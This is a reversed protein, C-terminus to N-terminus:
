RDNPRVRIGVLLNRGPMPNFYRQVGNNIEAMSVYREDLLNDVAVFPGLRVSGMRLNEHGIRIGVVTYAVNSVTNADNLFFSAVSKVDAQVYAGGARRYSLEVFGSHRPIGALRNGGFDDGAAQFREFTYDSYTYTAALTLPRAIVLTAGAEVGLQRVEAANLSAAFTTRDARPFNRTVIFNGTTQRFAAVEFSLREALQGKAGVEGSRVVQPSLGQNLVFEGGATPSNRLQESVPAEFGESYNAYLSLSGTPKVVVGVKPTFRTYRQTFKSGPAGPRMLNDFGFSIQDFRGGANVLLGPRLTLENQVYLGVSSLNEQLQQAAAGTTRNFISNSLPTGQYDVGVTFRNALGFVAASSLFRATAGRNIFFQTNRIPGSITSYIPRPVYYGTLEIQGTGGVPARLALAARFEDIDGRVGGTPVLAPNAQQPNAAMEAATLSGPIRQLLKDYALISTLTAGNSFQYGFKSNFGTNEFGSFQRWGDLQARFASTFYSFGGVRGGAKAHTKSYGYSGVWQRFERVPTESGEETIFNIVGGAQNGYLASSPGRVVEVRQVSALDINIFDQASGGANNKPVGDVLIRVGRAGFSSQAGAGRISVTSRSSGGTQVRMALGPVRRLSEDINTSQRALQVDSSQVVSLAAPINGIEQEARTGTVVVESLGRAVPSLAVNIRLEGEDPVTIPQAHRTYGVARVVLTRRGAAVAPLLYDGNANTVASVASEGDDAISVNAGAVPAGTGAVTVRGVVRVMRQGVSRTDSVDAPQAHAETLPSALLAALVTGAFPLWTRRHPLAVSRLMHSPALPNMASSLVVDM